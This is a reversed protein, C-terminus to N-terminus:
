HLLAFSGGDCTLRETVRAAFNFLAMKRQADVSSQDAAAAQWPEKVCFQADVVLDDCSVNNVSDFTIGDYLVTSPVSDKRKAGGVFANAVSLSAPKHM